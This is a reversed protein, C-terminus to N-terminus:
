DNKLMRELELIRESKSREIHEISNELERIRASSKNSNDDIASQLEAIRQATNDQTTKLQKQLEKIRDSSKNSNDDLASHLEAIRQAANDQTTKLQKQLEKIRDSSKNSNDDLASHLEAIRQAANDQTTKLQKQLEKIRDSSKNSNDDLASHLEAIRQAANDQITKLQKQLEKIRKTKVKNEKILLDFSKQNEKLHNEKSKSDKKLSDIASFYTNLQKQLTKQTNQTTIKNKESLSMRIEEISGATLGAKITKSSPKNNFFSNAELSDQFGYYRNNFEYVLYNSCYEVFNATKIHKTEFYQECESLNQFRLVSEHNCNAKLTYDHNQMGEPVALICNGINFLYYNAINGFIPVTSRKKKLEQSLRLKPAVWASEIKQAAWINHTVSYDSFEESVALVVGCHISMFTDNNKGDELFKLDFDKSYGECDHGFITGNMKLLKKSLRIDSKVTKYRHDGDIFIFDFMQEKFFSLAIKSDSRIPIITNDLGHSKVRHWFIQFIEDGEYDAYLETGKSGKWWDLCLLKGNHKRLEEGIILATDGTWSGIELGLAEPKAAYKTIKQMIIRQSDHFLQESLIFNVNLMKKFWTRPANHFIKLENM